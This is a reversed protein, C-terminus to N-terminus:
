RDTPARKPPGGFRQASARRCPRRPPKFRRTVPRDAKRTLFPGSTSRCSGGPSVKERSVHRPSPRIARRGICPCTGRRRGGSAQRDDDAARHRVQTPCQDGQNGACRTGPRRAYWSSRLCFLCSRLHEGSASRLVRHRSGPAAPRVDRDAPVDRRETTPHESTSVTRVVLAVQQVQQGTAQRPPDRAPLM